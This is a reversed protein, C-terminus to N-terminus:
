HQINIKELQKKAARTSLLITLPVQFSYFLMYLLHSNSVGRVLFGERIAYNSHEDNKALLKLYQFSFLYVYVYLLQKDLFSMVTSSSKVM